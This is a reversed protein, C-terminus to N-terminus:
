PRFAPIESTQLELNTLYTKLSQHRDIGIKKHLRYRMSEVGRVSLGMFRSIDRSNYDLKILLCIRLERQNLGPHKKQVSSIFPADAATYGTNLQHEKQGSEVLNLCYNTIQQKTRGDIELDAILGLLAKLTSAKEDNATSIGTSEIERSSHRAITSIEEANHHRANMKNLEIETNLAMIRQGLKKQCSRLAEEASREYEIEIDRFDSQIVEIAKFFPYSIHNEPPLYVQQDFMKLWAMRAATALFEEKLRTEKEEAPDKPTAEPAKGSKFNMVTTIADDRSDAMSIGLRNPSISQLMELQVRMSPDVNYLVILRFDPSWNYIIDTFEKKCSYRLGSINTCDIMIFLPKGSLKEERIIRLLDDHGIHELDIAQNACIETHLIDQGILTYKKTYNGKPNEISWQPKETIQLGNATSNTM